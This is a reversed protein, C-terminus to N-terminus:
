DNDNNRLENSIGINHLVCNRLKIMICICSRVYKEDYPSYRKHV